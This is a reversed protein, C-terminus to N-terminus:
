DISVGEKARLNIHGGDVKLTVVMGMQILKDVVWIRFSQEDLDLVDVSGWKTGDASSARIWVEGRRM